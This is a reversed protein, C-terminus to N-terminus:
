RYFVALWVCDQDPDTWDLRHRCHPPIDLYDGPAMEVPDADGEFLIRAVGSLLIVWEGEDQDYWFGPPSAHGRSVIREIRFAKGERLTEMLEDPLAEPIEQFLNRV